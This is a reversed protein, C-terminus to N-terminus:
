LLGLGQMREAFQSYFDGKTDYPSLFFTQLLRMNIAKIQNEPMGSQIMKQLESLIEHWKLIFSEYQKLQPTDLWRSIKVKTKGEKQCEHVQLFYDFKGDEYIRGLPFLRCIGPRAGHISCRGQENLFLCRDTDSQMKIQPQIVGDEMHLELSDTLLDQMTRHLEKELRYVDYPDLVIGNMDHCCASCGECDNCGVRVMDNSQYRKGDSVQNMDWERKM